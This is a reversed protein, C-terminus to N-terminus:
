GNIFKTRNNPYGVPTIMPNSTVEGSDALKLYDYKARNQMIMDNLNVEIPTSGDNYARGSFIGVGNHYIYLNVYGINLNNVPMLFTIDDSLNRM